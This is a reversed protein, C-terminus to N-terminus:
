KLEHTMMFFGQRPKFGVSKYLGQANINNNSVELHLAPVGLSRLLPILSNLIIRGFGKGRFEETIFFEDIWAEYGKFEVSYCFCVIIYGITTNDLDIIWAKGANKERFFAGLIERRENESIDINDFEHYSGMLESITDLNSSTAETLKIPSDSAFDPKSILSM